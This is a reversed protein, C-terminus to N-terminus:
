RKNLEEKQLEKNISVGAKAGEAAAVVVFHMDKSVDGAVYLGAINAQQLRNTVVVNNKNFDCGLEKAIDCQQEYGNVFFLAECPETKNNEFVIGVLKGRRGELRLVKQTFVNVNHRRLIEKELPKLNNRGDTFISVRPTWTKLSIALEFGNKNKAYVGVRKDRVEWADCYPCHFISKGYFFEIGKISPIHDQLGTAILLKKAYYSRGKKDRLQFIGTRLKEAHVIETRNTQVGYKKLEINAIKLFESPLINDRTLYNHIGHSLRNRQKGTDFLLISRRCRGLVVAANLGAPGGGVIIVDHVKM